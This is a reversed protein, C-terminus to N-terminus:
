SRRRANVSIVFQIDLEQSLDLLLADTLPLREGIAVQAERVVLHVGADLGGFRREALADHNQPMVVLAVFHDFEGIVGTVRQLERLGGGATALGLEDHEAADVEHGLARVDQAPGVLFDNKGIEGGATRHGVHGRGILELHAPALQVLHADVRGTRRVASSHAKACRGAPRPLTSNM